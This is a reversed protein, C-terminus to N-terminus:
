PCKVVIKNAYESGITLNSDRQNAGLQALQQALSANMQDPNLVSFKCPAPAGVLKAPTKEAFSFDIFFERDYVEVTLQKAEFFSAISWPSGAL